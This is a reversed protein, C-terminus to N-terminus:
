TKEWGRQYNVFYCWYEQFAAALFAISAHSPTAAGAEVLPLLPTINSQTCPESPLSLLPPFPWPPLWSASPQSHPSSFSSSM